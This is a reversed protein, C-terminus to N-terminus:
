LSFNITIKHDGFMQWNEQCTVKYKGKWKELTEKWKVPFIFESYCFHFVLKKSFDHYNVTLSLITDFIRISMNADEFRIHKFTIETINHFDSLSQNKYLNPFVILNKFKRRKEIHNDHYIKQFYKCVLGFNKLDEGELFSCFNYCIYPDVNKLTWNERFKLNSLRSLYTDNIERILCCLEENELPFKEISDIVKSFIDYKLQLTNKCHNIHLKKIKETSKFLVNEPKRIRIIQKKNM